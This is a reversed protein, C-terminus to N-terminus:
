EAATSVIRNKGCSSGSSGISYMAHVVSRGQKLCGNLVSVFTNTLTQARPWGIFWIWCKSAKYCQKSRLDARVFKAGSDEVALM